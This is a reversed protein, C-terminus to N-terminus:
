DTPRLNSDEMPRWDLRWHSAMAGLWNDNFPSHPLDSMGPSQLRGAGGSQNARMPLGSIRAEVSGAISTSM